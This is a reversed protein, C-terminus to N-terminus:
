KTEGLQKLLEDAAKIAARISRDIGEDTRSGHFALIAVMAAKAAEFRKQEFTQEFPTHFSIERTLSPKNVKVEQSERLRTENLRKNIEYENM